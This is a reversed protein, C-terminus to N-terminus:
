CAVHVHPMIILPLYPDLHIITKVINVKKVLRVLRVPGCNKHQLLDTSSISADDKDNGKHETRSGHGSNRRGDNNIQPFTKFNSAWTLYNLGSVIVHLNVNLCLINCQFHSDPSFVDYGTLTLPKWKRRKSGPTHRVIHSWSVVILLAPSPLALRM